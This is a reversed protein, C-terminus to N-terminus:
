WFVDGIIRSYRLDQALILVGISLSKMQYQELLTVDAGAHRCRLRPLGAHIEGKDFAQPPESIFPESSTIARVMRSPMSM